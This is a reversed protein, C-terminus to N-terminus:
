FSTGVLVGATLPAMYQAQWVINGGTASSAGGVTKINANELNRVYLEAYWSNTSQYRLAIDSRTFSKQQDNPNGATNNVGNNAVNMNVGGNFVSLWSATEFHTSLRPSLTGQNLHFTHELQLTGSFKPAHPMRNGTVDLVNSGQGNAIMLQSYDNSGAVLSGLKATPIYSTVLQLRDNPTLRAVLESEWGAVTTTGQANSVVLAQGGGPLNVASSFQYGKFEQDYIANNWKVAGGMFSMKSGVEYNLMTEPGFIGLPGKSAGGDQLGGSKYGTSVSAYVMTTPSLNFTAKALYTAKHDNYSGTNDNYQSFGSAMQGIPVGMNNNYNINTSPQVPWVLNGNSANDSGGQNSKDDKTYRVGGTLHVMDSLNWTEQTFIAKSTVLEKPQIFVGNWGITGQTTGNQQDVDFRINNDEHSYYLGLLWDLERKGTSQLQLENSYNTYHSNDTNNFQLGGGTTFSTPLVAGANQDYTSAGKFNGYGFTDNLSMGEAVAWDVHSHINLSTRDVSPAQQVLASWLSQGPRPNEMLLINPTGHDVFKEISSVWKLSTSPQYLYSIRLATQDQSDYKPGTTVFDNPNIASFGIPAGPHAANYSAIAPAAAAQQNALSINPVGQYNVYGDHQQHSFAIRMASEDSIPINIAGKAGLANYTGTTAEVYASHEGLAPKATQFNVVGVTSNRGWLTGQPGRLVEVGDLDYLMTTSGEARPSYVGDVFIAVEPDAQETKAQDNGIGRLTMTIVGHDGEQTAQFGPVLSTIDSVNQVHAKELESANIATIAVSTQQLSTARKTATVIVEQISGDDVPKGAVSTQTSTAASSPATQAHAAVTSTMLLLIALQIPTHLSRRPLDIQTKM